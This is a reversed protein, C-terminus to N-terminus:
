KINKYGPICTETRTDRWFSGITDSKVPIVIHHFIILTTTTALPIKGEHMRHVFSFFVKWCCECGGGGGISAQDWDLSTCLLLQQGAKRGGWQSESLLWYPPLLALAWETDRISVCCCFNPLLHSAIPDSLLPVRSFSYRPQKTCFWQVSCTLIVHKNNLFFQAKLIVKFLFSHYSQICIDTNNSRCPTLKSSQVDRKGWYTFGHRRLPLYWVPLRAKKTNALLAKQSCKLSNRLAVISCYYILATTRGFFFYVHLLWCSCM